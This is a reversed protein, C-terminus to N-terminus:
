YIEILTHTDSSQGGGAGALHGAYPLGCAFRLSPFFLFFSLCVPEFHPCWAYCYLLPLASPCPYLCPYPYVCHCPYLSHVVLGCPAVPQLTSCPTAVVVALAFLSQAFISMFTLSLNSSLTLPRGHLACWCKKRAM